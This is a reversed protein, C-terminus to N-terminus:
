KNIPQLHLVAEQSTTSLNTRFFTLLFEIHRRLLTNSYLPTPHFHQYLTPYKIKNEYNQL